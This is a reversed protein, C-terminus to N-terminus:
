LGKEKKYVRLILSQDEKPFSECNEFLWEAFGIAFNDQQQKEMEKAQQILKDASDRTLGNYKEIEEVFWEIVTKKMNEKKCKECYIEKTLGENIIVSCNNCLTAGRGNNFKHIPKVEQKM